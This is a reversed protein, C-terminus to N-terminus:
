FSNDYVIRQIHVTLYLKDEETLVYGYKKKLLEAIKNVCNFANVYKSAVMSYLESDITSKKEPKQHNMKQTFYKLHTVFRHYNASNEDLEMKFFFRIINLIEQIIITTRYGENNKLKDMSTDVHVNIIHMAIFAVEDEPLDVYFKEKILKLAELGVGYEKPYYRKIDWALPNTITIGEEYRKITSFIHDSLSILLIDNTAERNLQNCLEVIRNSVEFYDLPIDELVDQFKFFIDSNSIPFIKEIKSEDIKEGVRKNFVLGKGWVIVEQSEDGSVLAVNNNLIKKINM